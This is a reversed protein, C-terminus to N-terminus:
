PMPGPDPAATGICRQYQQSLEACKTSTLQNVEACSNSQQYASRMCEILVTGASQCQSSQGNLVNTCSGICEDPPATSPCAGQTIASCYNTCTTAPLPLTGPSGGTAAGGSPSGGTGGAAGAVGSTGGKGGNAAGGKGATGADSGSSGSGGSPQNPELTTTQDDALTSSRGGCGALLVLLLSGSGQLLRIPLGGM